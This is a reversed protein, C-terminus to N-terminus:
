DNGPKARTAQIKFLRAGGGIGLVGLPGRSRTGSLKGHEVWVRWAQPTDEDGYDVVEFSCGESDCRSNSIFSRHYPPGPVTLVGALRGDAFYLELSFATVTEVLSGDAEPQPQGNFTGRWLGSVKPSRAASAVTTVILLVGLIRM